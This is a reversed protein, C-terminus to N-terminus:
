SVNERIERTFWGPWIPTGISHFIEYFNVYTSHQGPRASVFEVHILGFDNNSAAGSKNRTKGTDPLSAIILAPQRGAQIGANYTARERTSEFLSM